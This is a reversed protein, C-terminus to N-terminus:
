RNRRRAILGIGVLASGVLIITGPEPTPQTLSTNDSFNIESGGGLTIDVYQSISYPSDLSNITASNDAQFSNQTINPTGPGVITDGADSPTGCPNQQDSQDICSLFSLLNDPSGTIVSGGIHSNVNIAPPTVPSTFSTDGFYLQLTHDAGSLNQVDLTSSLVKSLTATGPSNSLENVAISFVANASCTGTLCLGGAYAELGGSAGAALQYIAGGDVSASIVLEARALPLCVTALVM